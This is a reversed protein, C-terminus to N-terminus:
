SKLTAKLTDVIYKKYNDMNATMTGESARPADFDLTIWGAYNHQRLVRMFGLFDVGGTGFPKFPNEDGQEARTPAPGKWGTKAVNYKPAADKFHVAAVRPYYEQLCKVPDIGSISLHCTDTIIYVLKPDTLDMIKALEQQSEIISYTHPHHAFKVGLDMTRKGIENLIKALTQYQEATMQNPPTDRPRSALNVKLHKGGCAAIFGALKVNDDITQQGKKPDVNGGITCLELGAQDLLKKFDAPPRDLHGRMDERFEEVGQFGYKAIVKIGEDPHPEMGPSGNWGPRFLGGPGAWKFKDGPAGLAAAAAALGLGAGVFERRNLM